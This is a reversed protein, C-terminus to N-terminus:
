VKWANLNARVSNDIRTGSNSLFGGYAHVAVAVPRGNVIHFVPAGSQGGITDIDYFVKQPGVSTVKRSHLWQTGPKDSPYGSVTANVALLSADALVDFDFLGVSNGFPSAAPLVIAGYDVNQNGSNTWGTVSRFVNSVASGFPRLAGNRGPIVTISKVWGDRGAVGSDRIFVCHGATALTRPSIFWGTGVWRSNDRATIILSAIARNPFVTTDGVIVRDDNGIIAELGADDTFSAEGIDPLKEELPASEPEAAQENSVPTHEDSPGMTTEEM